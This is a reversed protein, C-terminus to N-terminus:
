TQHRKHRCRLKLGLIYFPLVLINYFVIRCLVGFIFVGDADRGLEPREKMDKFVSHMEVSYILISILLVAAWVGFWGIYRATCFAIAIFCIWWPWYFLVEYYLFQNM